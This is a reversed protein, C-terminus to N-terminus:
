EVLHFDDIENPLWGVLRSIVERKLRKRAHYITSLKLLKYSGGNSELALDELGLTKYIIDASAWLKRRCIQSEGKPDGAFRGELTGRILVEVFYPTWIVAKPSPVIAWNTKIAGRSYYFLRKTTLVKFPRFSYGPPWELGNDRLTAMRGYPGFARSCAEEVYQSEPLVLACIYGREPCILAAVTPKLISTCELMSLKDSCSKSYTM